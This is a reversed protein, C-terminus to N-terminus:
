KGAPPPPAVQPNAAQTEQQARQRAEYDKEAQEVRAQTEAAEADITSLRREREEAILEGFRISPDSRREAYAKDILQQTCGTVGGPGVPSCSLTGTKGVVEYAAVRNSWAVSQPNDIGRLPEPIRFRESEAKRACVTIEDGSSPPCPDDGYVILQNVKEGAEQAAAPASAWPGASLATIALAAAAGVAFRSQAPNNSQSIRM